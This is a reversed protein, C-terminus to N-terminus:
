GLFRRTPLMLNRRRPRRGGNGGPNRHQYPKHSYRDLLLLRLRAVQTPYPTSYRLTATALSSIPNSSKGGCTLGGNGLLCGDLVNEHGKRARVTGTLEIDAPRTYCAHIGVHLKRKDGTLAAEEESDPDVFVDPWSSLFSPTHNLPTSQTSRLLPLPSTRIRPLLFLVFRRGNGRDLRVSGM